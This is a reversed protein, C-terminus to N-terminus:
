FQSMVDDQRSGVTSCSPIPSVRRREEDGRVLPTDGDNNPRGLVAAGGGGEELLLRVGEPFRALLHLPSNGERNAM